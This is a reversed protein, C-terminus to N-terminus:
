DPNIESTDSLWGQLFLLLDRSDIEFDDVLNPSIPTPPAQAFGGTVELFLSLAIWLSSLRWISSLLAQEKWVMSADM